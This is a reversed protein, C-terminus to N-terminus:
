NGSSWPRLRFLAEIRSCFDSDLLQKAKKAAKSWAAKDEYIPLEVSGAETTKAKRAAVLAQAAVYTYGADRLRYAALWKLREEAGKRGSKQRADEPIKPRNSAAWQRFAETLEDLKYSWDIFLPEFLVTSGELILDSQDLKGSLQFVPANGHPHGFLRSQIYQDGLEGRQLRPWSYEFATFRTAIRIDVFPADITEAAFELHMGLHAKAEDDGTLPNEDYRLAIAEGITMGPSDKIAACLFGGDDFPELQDLVEINFVSKHWEQIGTRTRTASRTYEYILATYLEDERVSRLDWEDVGVPTLCKVSKAPADATSGNRQKKVRTAM